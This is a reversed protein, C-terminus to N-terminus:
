LFTTKRGFLTTVVDLCRRKLTM